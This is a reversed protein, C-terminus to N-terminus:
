DRNCVFVIRFYDPQPEIFYIENGIMALNGMHLQLYNSVNKGNLMGNEILQVSLFYGDKYAELQLRSAYDDCDAVQDGVLWLYALHEKAWSMLIAPSEFERWQNNVYVPNDVEVEKIITQEHYEPVYIIDASLNEAYIKWDEAYQQAAALYQKLQLNEKTYNDVSEALASNASKCTNLETHFSDISKSWADQKVSFAISIALLGLVGVINLALILNRKLTRV